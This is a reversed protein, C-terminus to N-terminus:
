SARPVSHSRLKKTPNRVVHPRCCIPEGMSCEPDGMQINPKKVEIFRQHYTNYYRIHDTGILWTNGNRNSHPSYFEPFEYNAIVERSTLSFRNIVHNSSIWLCNNDAQQIGHIINNSLTKKVSFDSRFTEIEKGDYCNVGDYTGFWMVGTSDQFLSIVASNSLGQSHDIKKFSYSDKDKDALCSFSYLLSLLVLLIRM